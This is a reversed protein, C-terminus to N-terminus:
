QERVLVEPRVWGEVSYSTSILVFDELRSIISVATGEPLSIWQRADANPIRRLRSEDTGVVSVEQQLSANTAATGILGAAAGLFLLSVGIVKVPVASLRIPLLCFGLTLAVLFPIFFLDPLIPAPLSIQRGLGAENEIQVLAERAPTFDPRAHIARRLHYVAAGVSGARYSLIGLNTRIGPNGPSAEDLREFAEVAAELRDANAHAYATAFADQELEAAGASSFFLIVLVIGTFLQRKALRRRRSLAFGLAVLPGPLALLYALPQRYLHV